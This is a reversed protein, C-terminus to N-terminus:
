KSVVVEVGTVWACTEHLGLHPCKPNGENDVDLADLLVTSCNRVCRDDIGHRSSLAGGPGINLALFPICARHASVASEASSGLIHFPSPSTNNHCKGDKQHHALCSYRGNGM